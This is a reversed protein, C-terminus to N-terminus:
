ASHQQAPRIHVPISKYAPTGSRVDYHDLAVLSNAEPYYAAASGKAIEFAVATM